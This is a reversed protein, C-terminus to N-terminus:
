CCREHEKEQMVHQDVMSMSSYWAGSPGASTVAVVAMLLAEHGDLPARLDDLVPAKTPMHAFCFSLVLLAPHAGLVHPKLV